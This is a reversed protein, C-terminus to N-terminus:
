ERSEGSQRGFIYRGIDEILNEYERRSKNEPLHIHLNIHIAATGAPAITGGKAPDPTSVIISTSPPIGDTGPLQDFSTNECLAKFTQIQQDLARDGGGSHINFLNHLKENSENFPTHSVQFLPAYLRRIEPAIARAGIDIRMFQSYLETPENNPSLLNIAKLVRLVTMDNNDSFGWSRLLASDFKAPRPKKPIEKLLRRLSAPKTTYPFAPSTESRSRPERSAKKRAM